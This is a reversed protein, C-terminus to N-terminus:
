LLSATPDAPWGPCVRSRHIKALPTGDVVFTVWDSGPPAHYTSKGSDIRGRLETAVAADDIDDLIEGVVATLMRRDVERLRYVPIRGVEAGDTLLIVERTAADLDLSLGPPLQEVIMEGKSEIALRAEFRFRDLDFKSVADATM